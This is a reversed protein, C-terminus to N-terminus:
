SFTPLADVRVTESPQNVINNIAITYVVQYKGDAQLAVGRSITFTQPRTDAAPIPSYYKEFVKGLTSHLFDRIDDSIATNGASGIGPGVNAAPIFFGSTASAPSTIAAGTGLWTSLTASSPNVAM